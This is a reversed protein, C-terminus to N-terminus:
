FMAKLGVFAATRRWDDSRGEEIEGGAIVDMGPIVRYELRLVGGTSRGEFNPAFLNEEGRDRLYARGAVRLRANMLDARGHLLWEDGHGGLPHGLPQGADTWGELFKWHRYWMPNGCCRRAFSTREIGLSVEPLGPLGAAEIGAVVGPVDKWSGASDEFGWEIYAVLPLAGVPPRYSVDVSVIQNDLESGEGAHKGVLVYLVDRLSVETNGEGGFMAARSVGLSLRPHPEVTGRAGWFWPHEFRGNSELRALFLDFRVPGLHRLFGPLVVPDAFFLGGGDITVAGDLVIGGGVGPRFGPARRGAWFGLSRWGVVGYAERFQWEQGTWSPVLVGALAPRLELGLTLAFGEDELTPLPTPGSWNAGSRRGTRVEGEHYRYDAELASEAVRLTRGGFPQFAEVTAPFEEALRDRYAVVLASVEPREEISREVAAELMRLAERRSLSRTGRDFGPELVGLAAVRRLADYSWHDTPLFPSAFGDAEQARAASPLLTSCIIALALGRVAHLVRSIQM